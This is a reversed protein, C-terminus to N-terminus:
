QGSVRPQAVIVTVSGQPANDAAVCLGVSDTTLVSDGMAKGRLGPVVWRVMVCPHPVVGMMFPCGAVLFTDSPRLIPAGVANARTNAPVINVKGGHPCMLVAAATLLQGM